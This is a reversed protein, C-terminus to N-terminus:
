FYVKMFNEAEIDCKHEYYRGFILMGFLMIIFLIALAVPCFIAMISGIAIIIAMIGVSKATRKLAERKIEKETM